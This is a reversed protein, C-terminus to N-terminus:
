GIFVTFRHQEWQDDSWFCCEFRLGKEPRNCSLKDVWGTFRHIHPVFCWGRRHKDALADMNCETMLLCLLDTFQRTNLDLMDATVDAIKNNISAITEISAVTTM